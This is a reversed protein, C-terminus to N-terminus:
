LSVTTYIAEIKFTTVQEVWFEDETGAPIWKGSAVRLELIATCKGRTCNVLLSDPLYDPIRNVTQREAEEGRFKGHGKCEPCRFSVPRDLRYKRVLCSSTQM